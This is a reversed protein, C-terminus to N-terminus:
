RNNFLIPRELPTSVTNPRISELYLRIEEKKTEWDQIMGYEAETSIDKAIQLEKNYFETKKRLTFEAIESQTAKEEWEETEVNFEPKCYVGEPCEPKNKVIDNKVYYSSDNLEKRANWREQLSMEVLIGDKLIGYAPITSPDQHVEIVTGRYLEEYNGIPFEENAHICIIGTKLQNKCVYLYKKM